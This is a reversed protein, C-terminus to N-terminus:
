KLPDHDPFNFPRHDHRIPISDEVRRGYFKKERSNSTEANSTDALSISILQDILKVHLVGHTAVKLLHYKYHFLRLVKKKVKNIKKEIM